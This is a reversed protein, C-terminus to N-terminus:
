TPGGPRDVAPVLLRETASSSRRGRQHGQTHRQDKDHGKGENHCGQGITYTAENARDTLNDVLAWRSRRSPDIIDWDDAFAYCGIPLAECQVRGRERRRQSVEGPWGRVDRHSTPGEDADAEQLEGEAYEDREEEIQVTPLDRPVHASARFSDPFRALRRSFSMPEVIL